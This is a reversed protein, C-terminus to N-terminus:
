ELWEPNGRQKCVSKKTENCAIDMWCQRPMTCATDVIVCDPGNTTPKDAAWFTVLLPRGDLWEWKNNKKRLGIWSSDPQTAIITELFEEEMETEVTPLTANQTVCFDAAEQFTKSPDPFLYISGDHAQWKQELLATVEAIAKEVAISQTAWGALKDAYSHVAILKELTTNDRLDPEVTDMFAEIEAAAARLIATKLFEFLFLGMMGLAAISLLTCFTICIYALTPSLRLKEMLSPSTSEDKPKEADDKAAADKDADKAGPEKKGAAAKKPAM